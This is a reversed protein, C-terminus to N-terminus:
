PWSDGSITSSISTLQSPKAAATAAEDVVGAANTIILEEPFKEGKHRSKFHALLHDKRTFLKDCLRCIVRVKHHFSRIHSQLHCNQSFHRDCFQCPYRVKQHISKIHKRMNSRDTFGKKCFECTYKKGEHASAAHKSLSYRTAFTKDCKDCCFKIGEHFSQVHHRLENPFRFTKDCLECSLSKSAKGRVLNEPTEIVGLGNSSRIRKFGTLQQTFLKNALLASYESQPPGGILKAPSESAAM